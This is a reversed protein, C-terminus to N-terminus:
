GDASRLHASLTTGAGPQTDVQLRGGLAALREALNALGDGGATAPDFGTGDDRVTIDLAGDHHALTVDVLTASAHKSANALAEAVTFYGAGEVEQAFRLGRLSPDARVEVPLASRAALSEVAELLGRDSLVSPHIGHALERLDALVHRLGAQL